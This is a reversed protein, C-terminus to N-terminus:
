LSKSQLDAYYDERLYAYLFYDCYIHFMKGQRVFGEKKFGCKELVKCSAYNGDGVHTWLRNLEAKEFCFAVVAQLAESAYGHNWYKKALRYGVHGMVSDEIFNVFIEGIIKNDTKLAMGWTLDNKKGKKPLGFYYIPNEPDRPEIFEVGWYKYVDPDLVYEKMNGKDELALKRLIMRETEVSPLNEYFENLGM